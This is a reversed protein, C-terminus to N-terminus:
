NQQFPPFSHIGEALIFTNAPEAVKYFEFRVVGKEPRVAEGYQQALKKFEEVQDSNVTLILTLCKHTKREQTVALAM